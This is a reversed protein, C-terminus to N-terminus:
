RISFNKGYLDKVNDFSVSQPMAGPPDQPRHITAILYGFQHTVLASMVKAYRFILVMDEGSSIVEAHLQDCYLKLYNETKAPCM